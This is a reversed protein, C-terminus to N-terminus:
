GERLRQAFRPVGAAELMDLLEEVSVAPGTLAASQAAIVNRVTREDIELLSLLFQDPHIVEITYPACAAEPFHRLNSTVIVEAPSAVAAALVHRDKEQNTMAPELRTIADREVLAEPFAARMRDVRYRAQEPTVRKEALNKELEALIRDSWFLDFLEREALRMLTDGLSFPYLVCTDLVAAFSPV